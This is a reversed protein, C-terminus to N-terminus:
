EPAAAPAFDAPNQYPVTSYFLETRKENMMALPHLMTKSFPIVKNVMNDLVYFKDKHEVLLVAHAIRKGRYRTYGLLLFMKDRAWGKHYLAVAKLLAIDECDGGGILTEVPTEWYDSVQHRVYDSKYTVSQNTINNISELADLPRPRLTVDALAERWAAVRPHKSTQTTIKAHSTRDAWDEFKERLPAATKSTLPFTKFAAPYKSAAQAVGGYQATVMLCLAAATFGALFLAPLLRPKQRPM